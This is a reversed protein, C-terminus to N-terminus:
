KGINRHLKEWICKWITEEAIKEKGYGIHMQVM